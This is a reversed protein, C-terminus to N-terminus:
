MYLKIIGKNSLIKNHPKQFSIVLVFKNKMTQQVSVRAHIRMLEM